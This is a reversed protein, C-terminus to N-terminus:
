KLFKKGSDAIPHGVFDKPLGVEMGAGVSATQVRWRDGNEVGFHLLYRVLGNPDDAPVPRIWGPSPKEQM